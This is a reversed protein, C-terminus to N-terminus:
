VFCGHFGLPLARAMKAEAIPGTANNIRAGVGFVPSMSDSIRNDFQPFEMEINSRTLKAVKSAM